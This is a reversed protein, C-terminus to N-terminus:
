VPDYRYRCLARGEEVHGQFVHWGCVDHQGSIWADLCYDCVLLLLQHMLARTVRQGMVQELVSVQLERSKGLDHNTARLNTCTTSMFPILQAYHSTQLMAFLVNIEHIHM